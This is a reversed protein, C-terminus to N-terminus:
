FRYVSHSSTSRHPSSLLHSLLSNKTAKEGGVSSNVKFVNMPLVFLTNKKWDHGPRDRLNIENQVANRGNAHTRTRVQCDNADLERQGREFLYLTPRVMSLHWVLLTIVM